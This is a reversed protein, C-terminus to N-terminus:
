NASNIFRKCEHYFRISGHQGPETLYDWCLETRCLKARNVSCKTVMRLGIDSGFRTLTFANNSWYLNKSIM